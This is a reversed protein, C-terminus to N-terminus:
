ILFCYAQFRFCFLLIFMTQGMKRLITFKSDGSQLGIRHLESQSFITKSTGRFSIWMPTCCDKPLQLFVYCWVTRMLSTVIRHKNFFFVPCFCSLLKGCFTMTCGLSRFMIRWSFLAQWVSLKISEQRILFKGWELKWKAIKYDTLSNYIKNLHLLVGWIQGKCILSRLIALWTFRWNKENRLETWIKFITCLAFRPAEIEM